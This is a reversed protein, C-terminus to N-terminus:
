VLQTMTQIMWESDGNEELLQILEEEKVDAYSILTLALDRKGENFILENADKKWMGTDIYCIKKLFDLQKDNLCYSTRYKAVAEQITM